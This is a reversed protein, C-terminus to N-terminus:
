SITFFIEQLDETGLNKMEAESYEKIITAIKFTPWFTRSYNFKGLMKSGSEIKV